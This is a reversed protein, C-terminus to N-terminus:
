LTPHIGRPVGRDDAAVGSRDTRRCCWVNGTFQASVTGSPMRRGIEAGLWVRLDDLTTRGSDIASTANSQTLLYGTLSGATVPVEHSLKETGVFRLGGAEAAAVDFHSRRPPSPFRSRYTDVLWASCEPAGHLQGSFFDTYTVFGGGVSLVRVTEALMASQDFWHFAAAAAVIGASGTAVPLREAAARVFHVGALPAACRLMPGSTDVGVVTDAVARLARSSMGTGCGVDVALGVPGSLALLRVAATIADPHYDPRAHAYNEATDTGLFPNGEPM